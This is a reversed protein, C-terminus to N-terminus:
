ELQENQEPVIKPSDMREDFRLKKGRGRQREPRPQKTKVYYLDLADKLTSKAIGCATTIDQWTAGRSHMFGAKMQTPTLDPFAAIMLEVAERVTPAAQAQLLAADRGAATAAAAAPPLATFDGWVPNTDPTGYLTSLRPMRSKIARSITDLKLADLDERMRQQPTFRWRDGGDLEILIDGCEDRAAGTMDRWELGNAPTFFEIRKKM